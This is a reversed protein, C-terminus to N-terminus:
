RVWNLWYKVFNQQELRGRLFCVFRLKLKFFSLFFSLFFFRQQIRPWISICIQYCCWFRFCASRLCRTPANWSAMSMAFRSGSASLPALRSSGALSSTHGKDSSPPSEPSTTTRWPTPRPSASTSSTAPNRRSPTSTEAPPWHGSFLGGSSLPSPFHRCIAASPNSNPLPPLFPLSPFHLLSSFHCPSKHSHLFQNWTNTPIPERRKETSIIYTYRNDSKANKFFSLFFRFARLEFHPKHKKAQM